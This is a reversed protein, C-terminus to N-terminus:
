AAQTYHQSRLLCMSPVPLVSFINTGATHYLHAQSGQIYRYHHDWKPMGSYRESSHNISLQIQVSLFPHLFIHLTDPETRCTQFALHIHDLYFGPMSAIPHFCVPYLYMWPSRFLPWSCIVTDFVLTSAHPRVFPLVFKLVVRKNYHIIFSM